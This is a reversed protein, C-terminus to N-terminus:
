IELKYGKGHINVLRVSQDRDLKKRLKSIFVDLSRGVIIGEDEWIEKQLRTREIISNPSHAFILLLKNETSTLPLTIGEFLIERKESYFETNGLTFFGNETALVSRERKYSFSKSIILGIFALFPLGGILYSKHIANLGGNQFKINIMYCDRDQERGTCPVIDQQQDSLIAYGFVIDSGSCNLVNVIYNNGIEEDVLVGKIASVLSDPQFTFENEFKIQYENEAIQTVPLVRSTSDGALLLIEHGVKRLLINQKAIEFDDQSRWGFAVFVWALLILLGMWLGWKPSKSLPKFYPAGYM